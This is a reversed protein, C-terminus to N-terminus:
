KPDDGCRVGPQDVSRVANTQRDSRKRWGRVEFGKAFLGAKGLDRRWQSKQERLGFRAQLRLSKYARAQKVSRQTEKLLKGVCDALKVSRGLYVSRQRRADRFALKYYPGLRRGKYERWCKVVVGQQAFIEPRVEILAKVEALKQDVSKRKELDAQSNM